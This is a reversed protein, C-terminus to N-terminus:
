LNPITFKFETYEGVESNAEVSGGHMEVISKVIYLGLGTSKTDLSRSKDVKYFREFIRRIEDPAIGQGSNKIAVTTNVDTRTVSVNIYGGEPTFKVANDILNYVVQHILGEDANVINNDMTDLGTIDISKNNIQQEFSLMTKFILESLDIEKPNLSLEGAEIKSLNLMSSVLRSLRKVEGSVLKLYHEEKEPPITGDLIGDIFGGISTMPTKLEHSVNAVFSRRSYELASLSQAMSNFADALETLENHGKVTIRENFDGRAYSKTIQSMKRLPNTITYTVIYVAIFSVVFAVLASLLFLKLISGVFPSLNEEVPETCIILAITKGGVKVPEGVLLNLSNNLKDTKGVYKYNGKKANEIVSSPVKMGAHETCIQNPNGSSIVNLTDRCLIIDGNLNCIYIDAGSGLSQSVLSLSYALMITPNNQYKDDIELEFYQSSLHSLHQVNSQIREVTERQWYGAVFALMSIGLIIFSVLIASFISIFYRRFTSSRKIRKRGSM